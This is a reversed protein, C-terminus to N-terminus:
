LLWFPKERELNGSWHVKRRLACSSIPFINVFLNNSPSLPNHPILIANLNWWKRPIALPSDNCGGREPGTEEVSFHYCCDMHQKGWIFVQLSHCPSQRNFCSCCGGKRGAGLQQPQRARASLLSIAPRLTTLFVMSSEHHPFVMREKWQSIWIVPKGM